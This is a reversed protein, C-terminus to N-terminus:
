GFLRESARKWRPRTRRLKECLKFRRRVGYSDITYESQGQTAEDKTDVLEWPEFKPGACLPRPDERWWGGFAPYWEYVGLKGIYKCRGRSGELTFQKGSPHFRIMWPRENEGFCVPKAEVYEATIETVVAERFLDQTGARMWVKQGVVLKGTEM